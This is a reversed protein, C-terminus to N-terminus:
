VIRHLNAVKTAILGDIFNVDVLVKDTVVDFGVRVFSEMFAGDGLLWEESEPDYVESTTTAATKRM